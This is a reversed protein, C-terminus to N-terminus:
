PTARYGREHLWAVMLEVAQERGGPRSDTLGYHDAEIEALTKDRSALGDFLMRADCPFIGNDRSYHVVLTPVEVAGANTAVSARSTTGSWTSLWAEPTVTRSFGFPGYNFLDPRRAFLSGYDRPSAEISPDTYRLDAETRYVTLFRVAISRRLARLDAPDNRAARRARRRVEVLERARRDIRAVRARQAARYTAVWDAAYSSSEPPPRFGNAADYMDLTPDVAAPDDEDVVSPDIASLLFVGEGPHAALYIIADLCPLDFAGLDLPDGAATDTLRETRDRHAQAIYFTYLSAGGSNGVAVIREFGLDRLRGLGCAVDLLLREHILTADNGLWRSNQTWVAYGAALLGPVLYHRTFDARPHMLTLVTEPRPGPPLWLFGHSGARDESALGLAELRSGHPLETDFEVVSYPHEYRGIAPM